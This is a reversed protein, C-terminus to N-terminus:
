TEYNILIKIGNDNLNNKLRESVIPLIRPNLFTPSCYEIVGKAGINYLLM